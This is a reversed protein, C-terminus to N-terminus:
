EPSPNSATGTARGRDRHAALGVAGVDRPIRDYEQRCREKDWVGFRGSLGTPRRPEEVRQTPLSTLIM